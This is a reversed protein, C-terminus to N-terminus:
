LSTNRLFSRFFEGSCILPTVCHTAGSDSYMGVVLMRLSADGDPHPPARPHPPHLPSMGVEKQIPNHIKIDTVDYRKSYMGVETQRPDSM